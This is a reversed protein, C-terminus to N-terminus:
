SGGRRRERVRDLLRILLEIQQGAGEGMEALRRRAEGDGEASLRQLIERARGHLGQKAYLEALTLTSM